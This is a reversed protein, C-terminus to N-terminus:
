QGALVQTSENYGPKLAEAYAVGTGAADDGAERPPDGDAEGAAEAAAPGAPGIARLDPLPM